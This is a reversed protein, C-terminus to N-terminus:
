RGPVDLWETQRKLMRLAFYLVVGGMILSVWFPEWVVRHDMILHEVLEIGAHGLIVVMVATYERRLVNLLSFPMPARRWNRVRPVFAPTSAAWNQFIEGFKQDLFAEEAFMIREYYLWFMLSFLLPLWWVFLVLSIGLGILYNGLYLPHRLLSYMGTTNLQEAIQRRANRGSTGKPTHGVTLVRVTLGLLSVGLSVFEWYEHFLYSQFPWDFNIFAVAILAIFALPLYSRWRFLWIGQRQLEDSLAM